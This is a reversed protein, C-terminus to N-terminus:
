RASGAPIARSIAVAPVGAVTLGSALDAIVVAGAGVVVDEGITIGPLAVAGIGFLTYSKVTVGGGLVSRPALHVHDGVVCDHEVIAGTNVIVNRGVRAGANVIAGPMILTGEGISASPSIIAAPHVLTAVRLGCAAAAARFCAARTRNNGIAIHIPADDASALALGADSAHVNAGHLSPDDDMFEPRYGAAVACDFVVRGHGGAGWIYLTTM